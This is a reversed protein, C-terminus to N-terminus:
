GTVAVRLAELHRGREAADIFAAEFSNEICGILQDRSAGVAELAAFNAGIHGGFYAPDDSSITAAIGADLMTFVPHQEIRDVARLAVNSLPCVNLPVHEDALRRLLEPDEVARLGHDIREVHLDDLAQRVYEPDGEEGAHCTRHLGDAAARAFVERFLMPPYGVETSDLGVGIFADRFPAMQTLMDDAAEAGLDRTFDLILDCSLGDRRADAFAAGYGEMVAALPVGARVHVMPNFFSEARVVGNERARRLYLAALDHFDEATRMVALNGFYVDLFDQLEGFRYRADLVEPDYSPLPIGNRKALVVLLESELAGELHMHIEAKPIASSSAPTLASM